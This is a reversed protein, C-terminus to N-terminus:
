QAPLIIVSVDRRADDTRMSTVTKKMLFPYLPGSKSDSVINVPNQLKKITSTKHLRSREVHAEDGQSRLM